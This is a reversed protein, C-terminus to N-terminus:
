SLRCPSPPGRRRAAMRHLTQMGVAGPRPKPGAASESEKSTCLFYAFFAGRLGFMWTPTPRPGIAHMAEPGTPGTECLRARCVGSVGPATCRLAPESTWPGSCGGAQGAARANRPSPGTRRRKSSGGGPYTADTSCPKALAARCFGRGRAGATSSWPGLPHKLHKRQRSEKCWCLFYTARRPSIGAPPPPSDFEGGFPPVAGCGAVGCGAQRRARLGVTATGHGSDAM